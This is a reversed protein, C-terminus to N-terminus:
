YCGNSSGRFFRFRKKEEHQRLLMSHCRSKVYDLNDRILECTRLSTLWKITGEDLERRLEERTRILGVIGNYGVFKKVVSDCVPKITESFFMELKVDKYAKKGIRESAYNAIGPYIEYEDLMRWPENNRRPDAALVHDLLSFVESENTKDSADISKVINRFAEKCKQKYKSQQDLVYNVVSGSYGESYKKILVDNRKFDSNNCNFAFTYALRMLNLVNQHLYRLYKSNSTDSYSKLIDDLVLSFEEPDRSDITDYFAREYKKVWAEDIERQETVREEGAKEIRKYNERRIREQEAERTAEQDPTGLVLENNNSEEVPLGDVSAIVQEENEAVTAVVGGILLLGFLVVIFHSNM